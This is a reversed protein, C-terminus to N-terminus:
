KLYLAVAASILCGALIVACERVVGAVQSNWWSQPDNGGRELFAKGQEYVAERAICTERLKSVTKYFEKIEGRMDTVSQELTDLRQSHLALQTMAKSIEKISDRIEEIDKEIKQSDVSGGGSGCIATRRM